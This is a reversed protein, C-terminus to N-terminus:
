QIPLTLIFRSWGDHSREYRITGGHAGTIDNSISLGLGVGEGAPKTTFFPDFIRDVYSESVGAGNDSVTIVLQNGHLTTSIIVRPEYGSPSEKWKRNVEYYANNLMNILVRSIDRPVVRIEPLSPEYEKELRVPCGPSVQSSSYSVISASQECLSNINSLTKKGSGSNSHMIMAKIIGEARQGHYLIKDLNRKLSSSIVKLENVDGTALTEDLLEMSLETFNNVFNLPNHLEHAVGATLSGLSALKEQKILQQQSQRITRIAEELEANKKELDATREAVQQELERERNRLQEVMFQNLRRLRKSIFGILEVTMGPYRNLVDFFHTRQISATVCPETTTVSMSRPERDLISMEGFFEGKTLRALLQEGDHIKVEGSMIFYMTFGVDDKKIITDGEPHITIVAKRVLEELMERSVKRFLRSAALADILEDSSPTTVTYMYLYESEPEYERFLM